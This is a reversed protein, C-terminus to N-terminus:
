VQVCSDDRGVFYTKQQSRADCRSEHSANHDGIFEYATKPLGILSLVYGLVAGGSYGVVPTPYNGIAAALILALWIAGFVTYARWNDKDYLCGLVAPAVLLVAGILVALGAFLHVDFASFLIQDVNPVAPLTDARMLTVGFAAVSSVLATVSYRDTRAIALLTLGAALMGAMARDPQLAMAIAAIIMGIMSLMNRYKAFCITMVPLVILSPQVSLAGLKFWRSAGQVQLGLLATALLLIALVLTIMGPWRLSDPDVRSIVALIVLGLILASANIGLYRMPAGAIGMYVLGLLVAGIACAVGVFRPRFENTTNSMMNIEGGYFQANNASPVVFPWLAHYAIVRPMLGLIGGLAFILARMDNPVATTEHSIAWGWSKLHQPLIWILFRSALVSLRRCIRFNM